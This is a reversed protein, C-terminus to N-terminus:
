IAICQQVGQAGREMGSCGECEANQSGAVQKQSETVDEEPFILGCNGPVLLIGGVGEDQTLIFETVYSM